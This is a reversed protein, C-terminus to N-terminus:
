NLKQEDRVQIIIQKLQEMNILHQLDSNEKAIILQDEIKQILENLLEIKNQKMLLFM